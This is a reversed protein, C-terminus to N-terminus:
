KSVGDAEEAVLLPSVNNEMRSSEGKGRGKREKKGKQQQEMESKGGTTVKKYKTPNKEIRGV